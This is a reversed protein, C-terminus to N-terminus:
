LAALAPTLDRNECHCPTQGWRLYFISIQGWRGAARRRSHLIAAESKIEGLSSWIVTSCAERRRQHANAIVTATTAAIDNGACCITVSVRSGAWCCSASKSFDTLSHVVCGYKM